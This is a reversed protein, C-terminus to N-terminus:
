KKKKKKDGKAYHTPLSGRYLRDFIRVNCAKSKRGPRGEASARLEAKLPISQSVTQFPKLPNAKKDMETTLHNCEQGECLQCQTDLSGM